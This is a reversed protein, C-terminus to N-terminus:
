SRPVGLFPLFHNCGIDGRAACHRCPAASSARRTPPAPEPPRPKARFANALRAGDFPRSTLAPEGRARRAKVTELSALFDAVAEDAPTIPEIM